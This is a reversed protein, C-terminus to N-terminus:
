SVVAAAEGPMGENIKCSAVDTFCPPCGRRLHALGAVIHRIPDNVWRQIALRM